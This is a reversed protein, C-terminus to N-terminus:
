HFIQFPRFPRQGTADTATLVAFMANCGDIAARNKRGIEMNLKRWAERREAGVHCSLPCELQAPTQRCFETSSDAM